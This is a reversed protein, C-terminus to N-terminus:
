GDLFDSAETVALTLDARLLPTGPGSGLQVGLRAEHRTRRWRGPLSGTLMERHGGAQLGGSERKQGESYSNPQEKCGTM